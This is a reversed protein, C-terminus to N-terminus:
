AAVDGDFIDPIGGSEEAGIQSRADGAFVNVNVTAVVGYAHHLAFLLRM